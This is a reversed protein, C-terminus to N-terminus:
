GHEKTKMDAIEHGNEWLHYNTAMTDSSFWLVITFSKVKYSVSTIDHKLPPHPNQEEKKKERHTHTKTYPNITFVLEM